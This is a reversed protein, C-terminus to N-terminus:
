SVVYDNKLREQREIAQDFLRLATENKGAKRMIHARSLYVTFYTYDDAHVSDALALARDSAKLGRVTDKMRSYINTLSSLNIIARSYEPEKMLLHAVEEYIASSQEDDGMDMYVNAIYSKITKVPTTDPLSAS